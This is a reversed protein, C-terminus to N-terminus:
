DGVRRVRRWSWPGARAYTHVRRPAFGNAAFARRSPRNDAAVLAVARDAGFREAAVRRSAAILATAIGRRRAGPDVFARRVYSGEFTLTSELPAVAHAVAPPSLFLHGVLEGGDAAAVVVEEDLLEDFPGDSRDLAAPELTALAADGAPAPVRVDGAPAAYEYMRTATVGRRALWDYCSRGYRNRTLRWLPGSAM